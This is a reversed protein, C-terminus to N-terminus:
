TKCPESIFWRHTLSDLFSVVLGNQAINTDTSELTLKLEVWNLETRCLQHEGARVTHSYRDHALYHTRSFLETKLQRRVTQWHWRWECCGAPQLRKHWCSAAAQQISRIASASVSLERRRVQLQSAALVTYCVTRTPPVVLDCRTPSLATCPVYAVFLQTSHQAPLQLGACVAQLWDVLQWDPLWHLVDRITSSISDFKRKCAILRAAVNFVRQAQQFHADYVCALVANCYDVRSIVLADVLTTTTDTTLSRRVPRLQRVWYFCRGALHRTHDVFTLIRPRHHRSAPSLAACVLLLITLWSSPVM